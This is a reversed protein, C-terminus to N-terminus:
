LYIEALKVFHMRDCSQFTHAVNYKREYSFAFWSVLDNKLEEWIM